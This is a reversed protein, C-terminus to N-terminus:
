LTLDACPTKWLSNVVDVRNLGNKRRIKVNPLSINSMCVQEFARQLVKEASLLRVPMQIPCETSSLRGQDLKDLKGLIFERFM